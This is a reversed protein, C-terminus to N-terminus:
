VGTVVQEVGGWRGAIVFTNWLGEGDWLCTRLGYLGVKLVRDLRRQLCTKVVGLTAEPAKLFELTRRLLGRARPEVALVVALEEVALQGLTCGALREAV